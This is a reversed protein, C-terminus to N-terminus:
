RGASVVTGGRVVGVAVEKQPVDGNKDFRITGSVGEVAPNGSGVGELYARIRARDTGARALAQQIVHLADYGLAADANPLARFRRQYDAVFRAAAQNRADAFFAAGIFVGEAVAGEDEVGLLGDAGLVLGTYGLQRVRPLIVAADGANGAIFLADMGRTLARRLYPEPGTGATLTETLYPDQAVVAGGAARFAGAFSAAVGRGYEDNAYLVAARRVGRAHAWRALAPGYALDSPSVRFTWPGAHTVQPSSATPSLAVVGGRPDNYVGAAALTASSNIHGIVAVVRPDDSLETAVQIAQRPDGGDDKVVLALRRGNVGGAANIEDVAMEAAQRVARGGATGMSGALGIHIEGGAGPGGCAALGLAAMGIRWGANM